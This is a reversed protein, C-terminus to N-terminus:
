IFAVVNRNPGLWYLCAAMRKSGAIMSGQPTSPPYTANAPSHLFCVVITVGSQLRQPEFRQRQKRRPFAQRSLKPCEGRNQQGIARGSRRCDRHENTVPSGWQTSLRYCLRWLRVLAMDSLGPSQHAASSKSYAKCERILPTSLTTIAARLPFHSSM